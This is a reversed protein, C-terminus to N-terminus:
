YVDVTTMTTATSSMCIFPINVWLHLVLSEFLVKSGDALLHVADCILCLLQQPLKWIGLLVNVALMFLHHLGPIGEQILGVLALVLQLLSLM